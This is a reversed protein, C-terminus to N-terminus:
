ASLLTFVQSIPLHACYWTGQAWVAKQLAALLRHSCSLQELLQVFNLKYVAPVWCYKIRVLVYGNKSKNILYKIYFSTLKKLWTGWKSDFLNQCLLKKLCQNGVGGKCPLCYKQDASWGGTCVQSTCPSNCHKVREKSAGRPNRRQSTPLPQLTQPCADPIAVNRTIVQELLVGIGVGQTQLGSSHCRKRPLVYLPSPTLYPSWSRNTHVGCSAARHRVAIPAEGVAPSPTGESYRGSLLTYQLLEGRTGMHWSICANGAAPVYHRVAQERVSSLRLAASRLLPRERGHLRCSPPSQGTGIGARGWRGAASWLPLRWGPAERAKRAPTM